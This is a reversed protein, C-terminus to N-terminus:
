QEKGVIEQTIEGTEPNVGIKVLIKEKTGLILRERKVDVNGLIQNIDAVNAGQLSKAHNLLKAANDLMKRFETEEEKGKYEQAEDPVMNYFCYGFQHYFLPDNIYSKQAAQFQVTADRYQGTKMLEVALFRRVEDSPNVAVARKLADIAEANRGSKSYAIGKLYLLEWDNRFNREALEVASIASQWLESNIHSKILIKYASLDNPDKTVVQQIINIVQDHNGLEMYSTAVAKLMNANAKDSDVLPKFSDIAAQYLKLYFNSFGEMTQLNESARAYYKSRRNIRASEIFRLANEYDGKEYYAKAIQAKAQFTEDDSESYDLAKTYYNVASQYDRKGDYAWGALFYSWFWDPYEEILKKAYVLAEDYKKEQILKRAMNFNEDQAQVIRASFGLLIVVALVTAAIRRSMM